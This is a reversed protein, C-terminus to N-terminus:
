HNPTGLNHDLRHREIHLDIAAVLSVLSDLLAACMPDDTPLTKAADVSYRTHRRIEVLSADTMLPTSATQDRGSM